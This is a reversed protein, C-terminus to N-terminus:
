RTGSNGIDGCGAVNGCDYFDRWFDDDNGTNGCNGANGCNYTALIKPDDKAITGCVKNQPDYYYYETDSAEGTIVIAHGYSGEGVIGLGADGCTSHDYDGCSSYGPSLGYRQEVWDMDASNFGNRYIDFAAAAESMQNKKAYYSVYENTISEISQGTLMHISQFMCDTGDGGSVMRQEERSLVPMEKRIEDILARTLKQKM